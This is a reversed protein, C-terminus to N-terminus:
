GISAKTVVGNTIHFNVRNTRFDRTAMFHKGDQFVVRFREFGMEKLRETAKEKTQGVAVFDVEQQTAINNM